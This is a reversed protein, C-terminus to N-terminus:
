VRDRDNHTFLELRKWTVAAAAEEVTDFLGVHIQRGQHTVKAQFKGDPHPSVGRVGTSSNRQAGGHNETNQKNTVLRLHAPNVCSRVRCQHDVQMGDPIPGVLLEYAFRHAYLMKGKRGGVKFHGYGNRQTSATWGWCGDTKIVKAWFLEEATRKTRM